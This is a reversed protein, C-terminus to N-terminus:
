EQFYIRKVRSSIGALIEYPITQISQALNEVSQEKGFIIVDDGEEAQLGTLDVFCMDMCINGVLAAPKGKVFFRVHGNGMRRDLGDAYGVPVIGITKGTETIDGRGYGISEGKRIKRIQSLTSKLTSVNQLVNDPLASFGYLGIGLRVMEYQAEPFREIGASNLIHRMPKVSRNMLCASMKEFRDIQELTFPDQAPDEAAALHSFVSKVELYRHSDLFSTLAEMDEGNFGLRNMGTNLKIHVPFSLLNHKRLIREFQYMSRFSYIEPELQYEIMQDFSSIEPNMVVVPIRIGATRLAIGEDVFAVCLYDVHQYQLANAIEYTGSGYSLAKVMVMIKTEPALRSRFVNLNHIMANLNVELITGHTKQQLMMTIKEFQFQRAGKILIAEDAFDAQRNSRLFDDTSDFFSGHKFVERHLSIQDGIGIFRRIGKESIVRAVEGYLEEGPKGSQYIDSLILTKMEHQNQQNLFDLAITLSALDSNYSDNILTCRNIGHILELRMAVPSLNELRWKIEHPPYDLFLLCAIVHMANELSAQDSFPISYTSENGAAVLTLITQGQEWAVHKLWIDSGPERSWTFLRDKDFKKVAIEHIVLHDRCYIIKQCDDFLRLKERAKEEYSSFNQQHAEKLNTIIGIDPRIIAELRSMEGPRSIGAEFVAMDYTSELMWVSLPVGVQSNYSRPSRIVKKEPQLVQYLWEKVVTKGNSGTIAIVPVPCRGRHHSIFQQMAHLTDEVQVFNLGNEGSSAPIEEVLFNTVGKRILDGIFSHGDHREGRLAIFLTEVPSVLTRSDVSLHQFVADRSGTLVGKTIDCLDGTTYRNM